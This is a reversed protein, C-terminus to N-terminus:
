LIALWGISKTAAMSVYAKITFLTSTIGEVWLVNNATLASQSTVLVMSPAAGIGHTVTVTKTGSPMIAVGAYTSRFKVDVV